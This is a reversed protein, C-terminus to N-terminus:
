RKGRTQDGSNTCNASDAAYQNNFDAQLRIATQNATENNGIPMPAIYRPTYAPPIYASTYEAPINLEKIIGAMEGYEKKLFLLADDLWEIYNNSSGYTLKKNDDM